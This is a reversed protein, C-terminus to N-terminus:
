PASHTAAASPVAGSFTAMGTTITDAYQRSRMLRELRMLPSEAMASMEPVAMATPTSVTLSAPLTLM